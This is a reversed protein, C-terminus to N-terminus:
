LTNFRQNILRALAIDKQTVQNGADHTRLNIQLQNYVNQWEPHHQMAEIEDVLQSMFKIVAPFDAFQLHRSIGQRDGQWGDLTKLENQLSLDDLAISM